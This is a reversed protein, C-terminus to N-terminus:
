RRESQFRIEETLLKQYDEQKPYLHLYNGQGITAIEKMKEIASTNNGVGVVSLKIGKSAGKKMIRKTKKESSSVNFDGDTVMVIINNGNSIYAKQAVQYAKNLGRGGNTRGSANLQKITKKLESRDEVVTPKLLIKSGDAYTVVSIKDIPRLEDLLTYISNKMVPMRDAPGMSGSIDILFVINNPAYKQVSMKFTDPIDAASYDITQRSGKTPLLSIEVTTDKNEQTYDINNNREPKSIQVNEITEVISNPTSPTDYKLLEERTRTATVEEEIIIPKLYITYSKNNSSINEFTGISNEYGDASANYKINGFYNTLKIKKYVKFLSKDELIGNFTRELELYANIEQQTNADKVVIELVQQTVQSKSNPAFSPCETAMDRSLEKVKGKVQLIIPKANASHYISVTESFNGKRSPNIQVRIYASKNPDIEFSSYAVAINDSKDARLLFLKSSQNNEVVFDVYRESYTYIEGFNHSSSGVINQSKALLVTVSFLVIFFLRM